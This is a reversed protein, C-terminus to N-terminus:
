IQIDLKNNKSFENYSSRIEQPLGNIIQNCKDVLNIYAKEDNANLATAIKYMYLYVMDTQANGCNKFFDASLVLTSVSKPTITTYINGSKSINMVMNEPAAVGPVPNACGCGGPGCSCRCGSNDCSASCGGSQSSCKDTALLHKPTEKGFKIAEFNVTPFAPLYGTPPNPTEGNVSSLSLIFIGIFLSFFIKMILFQNFLSSFHNV